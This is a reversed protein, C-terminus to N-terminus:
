FLTTPFWHGQNHPHQEHNMICLPLHKGRDDHKVPPYSSLQIGSEVSAWPMRRILIREFGTHRCFCHVSKVKYRVIGIKSKNKLWNEKFINKQGRRCYANKFSRGCCIKLHSLKINSDLPIIASLTFIRQSRPTKATRHRVKVYLTAGFGALSYRLPQTYKGSM